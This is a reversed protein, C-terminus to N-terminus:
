RTLTSTSMTALATVCCLLCPLIRLDRGDRVSPAQWVVFRGIQNALARARERTETSSNASGMYCTHFIRRAICRFWPYFSSIRQKDALRRGAGYETVCQCFEHPDRPIYSSGEPEGSVQRADRIAQADTGTHVGIASSGRQTHTNLGIAGRAGRAHVATAAPTWSSAACRTSSPPRPRRTLAAPCRCSFARCRPGGCTTGCGARRAWGAGARCNCVYSATYAESGQGRLCDISRHVCDGGAAHPVARPHAAGAQLPRWPAAHARRHQV